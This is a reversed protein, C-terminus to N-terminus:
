IVLRRRSLAHTFFLTQRIIFTTLFHIPKSDIVLIFKISICSVISSRHICHSWTKCSRTFRSVVTEDYFVILILLHPGFSRQGLYSGKALRLSQNSEKYSFLSGWLICLFTNSEFSLISAWMSLHSHPRGVKPSCYLSSQSETNLSGIFPMVRNFCCHDVERM